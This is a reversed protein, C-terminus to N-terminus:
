RPVEITAHSGLWDERFAMVSDSVPSEAEELTVVELRPDPALTVGQRHTVGRSRYALEVVDGPQHRAIMGRLAAPSSLPEGDLALLVDGRDVGAQYLPNGLRTNTTVVVGDAGQKLRTDGWWAAGPQRARLVMGAPALLVEFDPAERGTIYRDFFDDAFARDSVEALRDRLDDLTYPVEPQGHHRWMARLYDDLTVGPFRTRLSLDLALGLAAGYTYYSIFTNRRNTPDIATAADVFPAQQSMEVPSFLSRGPALVVTNIRGSLGHAYDALTIIGARRLMLDDYYSTFGEAFWLEGSMNVREFDFPELTRPRIREVNWSHFFEHAVTGVLGTANRALSGTSTLITSNRHEMGDGSVWPLYDVIFTYRGHDYPALGGYVAAEEAVVRRIMAFYADAEQDTGTHHLAMTIHSVRNGETVTWTRELHDSLETPSDMFYQLGPALFTHPDDTAILQTAVRWAPDAPDFTVAIPREDLGRAWAFTAPMNLHAHTPDIGSYTGGARDAYLTYSFRVLGHHGTVIWSYPDPRTVELARGESDEASVRYVNKAFEHLAYRGPSSRSMRVELPGEPLGSFSVVIAAEHHVANPFAVRYRVTDGAAQPVLSGALLLPYLAATLMHDIRESSLAHGPRLDIGVPFSRAVPFRGPLYYYEGPM